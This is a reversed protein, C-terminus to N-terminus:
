MRTNSNGTKGVTSQIQVAGPLSKNAEWIKGLSPNEFGDHVVTNRRCGWILVVTIVAFLTAMKKIVIPEGGIRTSTISGM